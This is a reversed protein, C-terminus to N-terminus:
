KRGRSRQDAAYATGLATAIYRDRQEKTANRTFKDASAKITQAIEKPADSLKMWPGSSRRPVARAMASSPADTKRRANRKDPEEDEPSDDDEIRRPKDEEEFEEEISRILEEAFADASKFASPEMNKGFEVARASRRPDVGFWPAKVKLSARIDANTFQAVDPNRHQLAFEQLQQAAKRAALIDGAQTASDLQNVLMNQQQQRVIAELDNAM